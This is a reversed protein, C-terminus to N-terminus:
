SDLGVGVVSEVQVAVSPTVDRDTALTAGPVTLDVASLGAVLVIHLAVSVSLALWILSPRSHIKTTHFM